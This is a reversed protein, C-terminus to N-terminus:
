RPPALRPGLTSAVARADYVDPTQASQGRGALVELTAVYTGEGGFSTSGGVGVASSRGYSSTGLGISFRPRTPPAIDNFRDVVRFWDYGRQLTLEAAHLLARDRVEAESVRSAGRFTARFRGPELDQESYGVPPPRYAGTTECAGLLGLCLASIALRKM